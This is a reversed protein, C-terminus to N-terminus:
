NILRYLGMAAFSSSLVVTGFMRARVSGMGGTRRALLKQNQAIQAKGSFYIYGGLGIFATAGVLTKAIKGNKSECRSVSRHAQM